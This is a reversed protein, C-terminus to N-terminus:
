VCKVSYAMAIYGQGSTNTMNLMHCVTALLLCLFFVLFMEQLMVIHQQHHYHWMKEKREEGETEEHPRKETQPGVPGATNIKFLTSPNTWWGPLSDPKITTENRPNDGQRLKLTQARKKFVCIREIARWIILSEEIVDFPQRAVDGTLYFAYSIIVVVVFVYVLVVVVVVNCILHCVVAFYFIFFLDNIISKWWICSSVCVCVSLLTELSSFCLAAVGSGM